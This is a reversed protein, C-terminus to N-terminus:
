IICSVRLKDLTAMVHDALLYESYEVHILPLAVPDGPNLSKVRQAPLCVLGFYEQGTWWTIWLNEVASVCTKWLDGVAKNVYM